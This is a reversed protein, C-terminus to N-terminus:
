LTTDTEATCLLSDATHKCIDEGKHIEEANLDGCANLLTRQATYYARM